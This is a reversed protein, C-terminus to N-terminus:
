LLLISAISFNVKKNEDSNGERGDNIPPPSDVVVQAHPIPSLQGTSHDECNPQTVSFASSRDSEPISETPSIQPALLPRSGFAPFLTQSHSAAIPLFPHPPPPQPGLSQPYPNRTFYPIMLDMWSPNFMQNYQRMLLENAAVAAASSGPPFRRHMQQLRLTADPGSRSCDELGALLRPDLLRSDMPDPENSRVRKAEHLQQLDNRDEDDTMQGCTGSSSLSSSSSSTSTNNSGSGLKRKCRSQGTERFGKAFPNNDIKLKTIRDNQYATVAVFEAEPFIFAQQAAWPIQSPDATRIIHIRPRYKHMSTLVVHGNNDLTNNTLKVKNFVIPQSAWHTGLAPSDPHLCFRQPSQPEAGGAPVWQSGSFKFRCDSIPMMELLVCYNTDADLGDVTLRMSPFMRRGCKTIIMETGIKHFERWLEKNQLKIEVGPLSYRPPLAMAHMPPVPVPLMSPFPDPIRQMMQQRYIEHAIHQHMRLDIMDTM